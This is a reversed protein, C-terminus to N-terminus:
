IKKDKCGTGVSPVPKNPTAELKLIGASAGRAGHHFRHVHLLANKFWIVKFPMLFFKVTVLRM